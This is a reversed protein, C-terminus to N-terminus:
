FHRRKKAVNLDLYEDLFSNAIGLVGLVTLLALSGLSLRFGTIRKKAAESYGWFYQRRIYYVLGLCTAFVQNFYWGAMWLTILFIPYFEVCNQQACFIREFEPSGSVALPTVEYKLRAKGVHLAFYSQQCASQVSVAALLISHGAM